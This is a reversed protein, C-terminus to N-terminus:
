HAQLARLSDILGAGQFHPERGLDTASEMLIRKVAEPDGVLDRHRAMLLAAVGSVHPAAMSTGDKTGYSDHLVPADIKEGPAVLDPKMRGDGTPGRSSFYSVGYEHPKDRHTSGVTIVHSANGPDTISISNYGEIESGDTKRFQVYGDNGAAAVVVVGSAALRDAEECVPTRGCAYNMVRAPISLSLNVGHIVRMDNQANLHRLFQLAAMVGFESARDDEDFVRIDYLNINPAVGFMQYDNWNAGLIGAVHTGHDNTPAEYSENPVLALDALLGYDIDRGRTLHRELSDMSELREVRESAKLKEFGDVYAQSFVDVAEARLLQVRRKDPADQSPFSAGEPDRGYIAEWEIRQLETRRQEDDREDFDPLKPKKTGERAENTAQWEVRMLERFRADNDLAEFETMRENQFRRKWMRELVRERQQEFTQEGFERLPLGLSEWNVQQLLDKAERSELQQWHFLKLYEAGSELARRDLLKDVNAFNYTATVRSSDLPSEMNRGNAFAPHRADIGTDVVAWSIASCDIRFVNEAADVKITNRSARVSTKADRNPEVLWVLSRGPTEDALAYQDRLERLRDNDHIEPLEQLVDIAAKYIEEPTICTAGPDCAGGELIVDDVWASKRRTHAGEDNEGRFGEGYAIAGVIRILWPLPSRALRKFRNKALLKRDKELLNLSDLIAPEGWSTADAATKSEVAKRIVKKPNKHCPAGILLILDEKQRTLWLLGKRHDYAPHKLAEPDFSKETGVKADHKPVSPHIIEDHSREAEELVFKSWLRTVPMIVRILSDFYPRATVHTQHYAVELDIARPPLRRDRRDPVLDSHELEMAANLYRSLRGATIEMYPRMILKVREHGIEDRHGPPKYRSVQAYSNWVEPLIPTDATFRRGEPTTFLLREMVTPNVPM